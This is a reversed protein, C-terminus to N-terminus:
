KIGLKAKYKAVMDAYEEDTLYVEKEGKDWFFHGWQFEDKYKPVMHMHVHPVGDGFIGYNIKGPNFLEKIAKSVKAVDVFFGNREEDTMEFVETRHAGNLALVVRGLHNQNKLIFLTTHELKGVEILLEERKENHEDCYMCSM